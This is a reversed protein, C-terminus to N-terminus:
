EKIANLKQAAETARQTGAFDKIVKNYYYKAKKINNLQDYARGLFYLANVNKPDYKIAKLLTTKAEEYKYDTYEQWGQQYITEAAETFTAKKVYKYVSKAADTPLTNVDMNLLKEAAKLTKGQSYLSVAKFLEDYMAPDFVDKNEWETITDQADSLQNNLDDIEGELISITSEQKETQKIYTELESVEEDERYKQVEPVILYWTVIVGILLGFFLSLWPMPSPKVEKYSSIPNLKDTEKFIEHTQSSAAITERKKAPQEAPM